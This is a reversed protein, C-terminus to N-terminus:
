HRALIPFRVPKPDFPSKPGPLQPKFPPLTPLRSPGLSRANRRNYGPHTPGTDHSSSQRTSGGRSARPTGLSRAVRRNPDLKIDDIYKPLFPHDGTAPAKPLDGGKFLWQPEDNSRRLRILVPRKPPPRYTPLIFRQCSTEYVFVSALVVLIILLKYM